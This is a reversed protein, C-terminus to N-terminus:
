TRPDRTDTLESPPVAPHQPSATGAVGTGPSSHVLGARASATEEGPFRLRTPPAATGPSGRPPPVTSFCTGPVSPAAPVATGGPCRGDTGSHCSAGLCPHLAPLGRRLWCRAPGGPTKQGWGWFSLSVFLYNRNGEGPGASLWHAPQPGWSPHGRPAQSPGAAVVTM